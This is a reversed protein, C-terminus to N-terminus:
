CRLEYVETRAHRYDIWAFPRDAMVASTGPRLGDLGKRFLPEIPDGDPLRWATVAAICATVM